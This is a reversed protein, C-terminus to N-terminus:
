TYSWTQWPSGTAPWFPLASYCGQGCHLPLAPLPPTTGPWGRLGQLTACRLEASQGPALLPLAVEVCDPLEGCGQRGRWGRTTLLAHGDADRAEFELSVTCRQFPLSAHQTAARKEGPEDKQSWPLRLTMGSEGSSPLVHRLPDFAEPGRQMDRLQITCQIREVDVREFGSMRLQPHKLAVGFAELDILFSAKEAVQMSCLLVESLQHPLFGDDQEGVVHRCTTPELLLVQQAQGKPLEWINYCIAVCDGWRPSLGTGHEEVQKLLRRDGLLDEVSEETWRALRGLGSIAVTYDRANSLGAESTISTRRKLQLLLEWRSPARLSRFSARTCPTGKM